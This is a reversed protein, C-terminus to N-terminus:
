KERSWQFNTLHSPRTKVEKSQTEGLSQQLAKMLGIRESNRFGILCTMCCIAKYKKADNKKIKTKTETSEHLPDGRREESTRGSREPVPNETYRNVYFVSDQSSSSPSDLSPTTSFFSASLGPVVFPVYNSKKKCDIRKVNRILHPKQGSTWHYTKGHDECLKWPFESLKKLFCLKSSYTRNSSM